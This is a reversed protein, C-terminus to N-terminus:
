LSDLRGPDVFIFRDSVVYGLFSCLVVACVNALEIPAATATVIVATIGVNVVAVGSKAAQYRIWHALWQQRSSPRRDRWTWRVHAFFNSFIAVEIAAFTAIGYHWGAIRTLMVLTMMQIAFGGAGVVSFVGFRRASAM